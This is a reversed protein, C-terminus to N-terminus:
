NFHFNENKLFQGSLFDNEKNIQPHVETSFVIWNALAM